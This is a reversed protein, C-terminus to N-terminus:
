VSKLSVYQLINPKIKNKSKYSKLIIKENPELMNQINTKSNM